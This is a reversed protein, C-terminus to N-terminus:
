LLLRMFVTGSPTPEYYPSIREFGMREYLKMATTMTPLTDLRLERYGIQKAKEIVAETMGRGLGLGRASPLLFLRKM